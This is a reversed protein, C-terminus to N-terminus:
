FQVRIGVTFENADAGDIAFGDNTPTGFNIADQGSEVDGFVIYQYEAYVSVADSVEINGGFGLNWSFETSDGDAYGTYFGDATRDLADFSADGGDTIGSGGLKASYSNDSVGVGAKIYPTFVSNNPFDYFAEVTYTTSEIEGILGYNLDSRDAKTGALGSKNQDFSGERYSIRGELRLNDNFVYGIGIGGVTGDGADFSAPFSDDVALNNGTATNDTSQASFGIQGSVYYGEAQALSPIALAMAIGVVLKKSFNNM